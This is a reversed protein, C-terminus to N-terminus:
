DSLRVEWRCGHGTSWEFLEVSASCGKALANASISSTCFTCPSDLTLVTGRAREQERFDWIACHVIHMMTAGSRSQGINYRSSYGDAQEIMRHVVGPIGPSRMPATEGHVEAIAEAWRSLETEGYRTVVFKEMAAQARFFTRKWEEVEMGDAEGVDSFIMSQLTAWSALDQGRHREVFWRTFGAEAEFLRRQWINM